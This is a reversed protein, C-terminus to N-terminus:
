RRASRRRRKATKSKRHKRKGKGKRTKSGRGGAHTSYYAELVNLMAQFKDQFLGIGTEQQVLALRRSYPAQVERPTRDILEYTKAHDRIKEASIMELAFQKEAASPPGLANLQEFIREQSYPKPSPEIELLPAISSPAPGNMYVAM